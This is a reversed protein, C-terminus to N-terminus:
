FVYNYFIKFFVKSLFFRNCFFDRPDRPNKREPGEPSPVLFRLQLIINFYSLSTQEAGSSWLVILLLGYLSISYIPASFSPVSSSLLYFFRTLFVGLNNQPTINKLNKSM